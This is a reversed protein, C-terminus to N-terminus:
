DRLRGINLAVKSEYPALMERGTELASGTFMAAFFGASLSMTIAVAKETVMELADPASLQGALMQNTRASAVESASSIMDNSARYLDICDNIYTM